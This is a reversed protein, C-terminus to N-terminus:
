GRLLSSQSLAMVREICLREEPTTLCVKHEHSPRYQLHALARAEDADTMVISHNHHNLHQSRYVNFHDGNASGNVTMRIVEVNEDYMRQASLVFISLDSKCSVSCIICVVVVFSCGVCACILLV